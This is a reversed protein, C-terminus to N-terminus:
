LRGIEKGFHGEPFGPLDEAAELTLSGSPSTMGRAARERERGHDM